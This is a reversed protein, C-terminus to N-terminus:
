GRDDVRTLQMLEMPDRFSLLNLMVADAFSVVVTTAGIGLALIAVALAAFAPARVLSRFGMRLDRWFGSM